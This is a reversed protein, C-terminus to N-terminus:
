LDALERASFIYGWRGNDRLVMDCNVGAPLFFDASRAMAAMKSLIRKKRM